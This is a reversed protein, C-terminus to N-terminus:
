RTSTQGSPIKDVDNISESGRPSEDGLWDEDRALRFVQGSTRTVEDALEHFAPTSIPLQRKRQETDRLHDLAGLLKNSRDTLARKNQDTM